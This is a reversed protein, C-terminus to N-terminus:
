TQRDAGPGARAVVLAAERERQEVVHEAARGGRAEHLLDALLAAHGVADVAVRRAVVVGALDADVDARAGLVHPLADLDRARLDGIQRAPPSVASSSSRALSLTLPRMSSASSDVDDRM